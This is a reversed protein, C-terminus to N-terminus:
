WRCCSDAARAPRSAECARAAPYRILLHERRRADGRLHHRTALHFPRQHESSARRRSARESLDADLTHEGALRAGIVHLGHVDSPMGVAVHSVDLGRTLRDPCSRLEVHSRIHREESRAAPTRHPIRIRDNARNTADRARRHDEGAFRRKMRKPEDRLLQANGRVLHADDTVVRSDFHDHRALPLSSRETDAGANVLLFIPRTLSPHAPRM